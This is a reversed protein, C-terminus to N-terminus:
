SSYLIASCIKCKGKRRSVIWFCCFNHFINFVWSKIFNPPLRWFIKWLFGFIASKKSFSGLPLYFCASSLNWHFSCQGFCTESVAWLSIIEQHHASHTLPGFSHEKIELHHPPQSSHPSLFAGMKLGNKKFSASSAPSGSTDCFFWIQLFWVIKTIM